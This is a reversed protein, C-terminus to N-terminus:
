KKEQMAKVTKEFAAIQKESLQKYQLYHIKINRLFPNDKYFEDPIDFFKQMKKTKIPKNLEEKQCDYCQVYKQRWNAM